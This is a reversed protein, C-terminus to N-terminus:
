KFGKDELFLKVSKYSNFMEFEEGSIDVSFEDAVAAILIAQALSDWKPFNLQTIEEINNDNELDLTSIFISNLKAINEINMFKKLERIIIDFM